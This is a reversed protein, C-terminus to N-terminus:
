AAPPAVPTAAWDEEHDARRLMEDESAAV